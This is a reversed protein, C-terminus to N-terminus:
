RRRDQGICQAEAWVHFLPSEDGGDATYHIPIMGGYPFAPSTITMDM